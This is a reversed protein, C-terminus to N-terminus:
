PAYHIPKVVLGDLHDDDFGVLYWKDKNMELHCKVWKGNILVMLISGCHLGDSFENKGFYIKYRDLKKDYEMIGQKM